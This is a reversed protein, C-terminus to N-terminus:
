FLAAVSDKGSYDQILVLVKYGPVMKLNGRADRMLTGDNSMTYTRADYAFRPMPGRYQSRILNFLTRANEPSLHVCGASAREGLRAIADGSAAHIALGTRLGQREWNFFMAYPMPQDWAHSRYKRYMRSPDLEYYGHPTGTFVNRGRPSIENAERGTSAPWDYLLALNGRDDKSFVYMRQALPGHDAKSVYVFLSFAERMAPTLSEKLRESVAIIRASAKMHPSITIPPPEPMVMPAASALSSQKRPTLDPLITIRAAGMAALDDAAGGSLALPAPQLMRPAVHLPQRPTRTRVAGPGPPALTITVAPGSDQDLIAVDARHIVGLLPQWLARDAQATIENWGARFAGDLDPHAAYTAALVFFAASALYSLALTRLGPM